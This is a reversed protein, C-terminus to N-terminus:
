NLGNKLLKRLLVRFFAFLEFLKLKHSAIILNSMEIEKSFLFFYGFYNEHAWDSDANHMCLLFISFLFHNILDNHKGLM